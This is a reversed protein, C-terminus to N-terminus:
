AWDEDFREDLWEVRYPQPSWGGYRDRMSLRGVGRHAGDHGETRVCSVTRSVARGDDVEIDASCHASCRELVVKVEVRGPLDGPLPVELRESRSM